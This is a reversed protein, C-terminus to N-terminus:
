ALRRHRPLSCLAGSGRPLGPSATLHSCRTMVVQELFWAPCARRAHGRLGWVSGLIIPFGYFRHHLQTRSSDLVRALNCLLYVVPRSISDQSRAQAALRLREGRWCPKQDHAVREPGCVCLDLWRGGLCDRRSLGQKGPFGAARRPFFLTGRFPQPVQMDRGPNPSLLPDGASAEGAERRASPREPGEM